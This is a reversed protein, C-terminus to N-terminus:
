KSVQLILHNIHINAEKDFFVLCNSCYYKNCQVCYYDIKNNHKQCINRNEISDGDERRINNDQNNNISINNQELNINNHQFKPHNDINNIFYSTMDELFPLPIMDQSTVKHKCIGCYDHNYLWKDICAQCCIKKCYKCMKPKNVKTLCIYCKLHDRIQNELELEKKMQESQQSANPNINPNSNKKNQNSNKSGKFMYTKSNLNNNKNNM